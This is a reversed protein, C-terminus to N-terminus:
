AASARNITIDGAGTRARVEVKSENAAPGNSETLGNRVSGFKSNVELWAAAGERIGIEIAGAGTRVAVSGTSVESIRIDGAASGASVSALARGLAINGSATRIHVNRSCEAIEVVGNANKVTATGAILGLRIAGTGTKVVADNAIHDAVVDGFGSKAVLGGVRDLRIEGMGSRVATDGLDGESHISGFGTTATLSSGSPLDISVIVAGDRKGPGTFRQWSKASKVALVGNTFEITASEAARVDAEKGADRPHVDVLCDTRDSANIRIDGAMIEVVATVPTTAHFTKM